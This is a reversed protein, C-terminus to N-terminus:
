LFVKRVRKLAKHLEQIDKMKELIARKLILVNDFAPLKEDEIIFMSLKRTIKSIESIMRLRDNIRRSRSLSLGTILRLEDAKVNAEDVESTIGDFPAKKAWYIDCNLDEFIEKIKQTVWWTNGTGSFYFISIKM